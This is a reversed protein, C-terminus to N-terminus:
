QLEMPLRFSIKEQCVTKEEVTAQFRAQLIGVCAQVVHEPASAGATILVTENGHFWGTAIDDPGDVLYSCIGLSEAKEALRRSNSSTRSGVVLVIDAGAGLEKVADQRNQTAYCINANEPGVIGPFRRRMLEIMKHTEDISLTTQTLYALKEDLEFNLGEIEHENEVIRIYEPAECMVGIVEDHGRHGILLITYGASAYRVVEQHVKRVLPCTADITEINREIATLRIEPAVGHASFMVRGGVPVEDITNVFHVGKARFDEVVWNNHVIEHYVYIPAGFQEIAADLAKIAMNVGACFGRPNALIIHMM